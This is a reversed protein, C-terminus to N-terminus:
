WQIKGQHAFVSSQPIWGSSAGPYTIQVWNGMRQNISVELGEYLDFLEPSGTDPASHVAVKELTITARVTQHDIMKSVTFFLSLVLGAALVGTIPSFPAPPVSEEKAKKRAAFYTILLWGVSFLFLATIIGLASLSVADLYNKRFEDYWRIEHPVEKVPLQSFIYDHALRPTSYDPDLMMARRLVGLAPGKKGTQFFSLGLNTLANVSDPRLLVAQKFAVVADPFSKAQYFEVGKQYAQPFDLKEASFTSTAPPADTTATTTETVAQTANGPLSASLCLSLTILILPFRNLKSM